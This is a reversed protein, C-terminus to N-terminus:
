KQWYENLIRKKIIYKEPIIQIIYKEFWKKGVILNKLLKSEECYDTYIMDISKDFLIPTNKYKLKLKTIIETTEKVKDWNKYYYGYIM